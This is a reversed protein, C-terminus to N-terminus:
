NKREKLENNTQLKPTQVENSLKLRALDIKVFMIRKYNASQLKGVRWVDFVYYRWKTESNRTSTSPSADSLRVDIVLCCRADSFRLGERDHRPGRRSFLVLRDEGCAM